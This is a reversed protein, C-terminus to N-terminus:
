PMSYRAYHKGNAGEVMVKHICHGRKKLDSIRSALRFCGWRNLADLATIQEGRMLADLIMDSQTGFVIERQQLSM